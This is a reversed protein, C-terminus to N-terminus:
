LILIAEKIVKKTYIETLYNFEMFHVDYSIRQHNWILNIINNHDLNNIVADFDKHLAFEMCLEEWSCKEKERIFEIMRQKLDTM